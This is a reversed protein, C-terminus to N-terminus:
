YRLPTNLSCTRYTYHRGASRLECRLTVLIRRNKCTGLARDLFCRGFNAELSKYIYIKKFCEDSFYKRGETCPEIAPSEMGLDSVLNAILVM